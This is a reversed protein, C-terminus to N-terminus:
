SCLEFLNRFWVKKVGVLIERRFNSLFGISRFARELEQWNCVVRDM